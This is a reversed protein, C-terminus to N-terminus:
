KKDPEANSQINWFRLEVTQFREFYYPPSLITFSFYELIIKKVNRMKSQENDRNTVSPTASSVTDIVVSSPFSSLHIYKGGGCDLAGPTM